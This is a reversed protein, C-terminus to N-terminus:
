ITLIKEIGLAAKPKEKAYLEQKIYSKQLM